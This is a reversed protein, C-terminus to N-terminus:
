LTEIERAGADILAQKLKAVNGRNAPVTVEIAGHLPADGREAEGPAGSAHDGGSIEAGATNEDAVPGVFVLGRGVDYAQVLHEVALDAGERTAFTARLGQVAEPAGAGGEQSIYRYLAYGAAGAFALRFLGM